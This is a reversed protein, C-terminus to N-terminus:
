KGMFKRVRELHNAKRPGRVGQCHEEPEAKCYPCAVTRIETPTPGDMYYEFGKGRTSRRTTV